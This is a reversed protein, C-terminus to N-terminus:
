KLLKKTVKQDGHILNFIYVGKNLEGGNYYEFYNTGKRSYQTKDIVPQGNQNVVLIRSEGPESVTYKVKFRERFPNPMVKEIKVPEGEQGGQKFNVTEMPSYEYDGNFDVQKLRYYATGKVPAYDVYSYEHSKITTGHGDVSGLNEFNNGNESRQVMFHSNNKESATKWTLKVQDNGQKAHFSVLEVPLPNTGTTDGFTFSSFNGVLTSTVSGGANGTGGSVQSQGASEWKGKKSNYHAVVLSNLNTIGFNNANGWYLTVKVKGSGTMRKIEYYGGKDYIRKLNNTRSNSNPLSQNKYRLQYTANKTHDRIAAKMIKSGQKFKFTFNKSGKKAYPGKIYTSTNFGNIKSHDGLVLLNAATSKVVGKKLYFFGHVTTKGNLGIQPSNNSKNKIVVNNLHFNDNGTGADKPLTQQNNGIFYVTSNGSAYLDGYGNKRIFKGMLYLKGKKNMTIQAKGAYIQWKYTPFNFAKTTSVDYKVDGYVVLKGKGTIKLDSNYNKVYTKKFWKKGFYYAKM